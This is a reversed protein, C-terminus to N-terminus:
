HQAVVRGSRRVHVRVGQVTTPVDRRPPTGDDLVRVLLGYGDGEPSIGVATVGPRDALAAKLEAKARRAADLDAM